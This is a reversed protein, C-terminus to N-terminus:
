IATLSPRVQAMAKNWRRDLEREIAECTCRAGIDRAHRLLTTLESLSLVYVGNM